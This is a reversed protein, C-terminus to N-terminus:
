SSQLTNEWGQGGFWGKHCYRGPRNWCANGCRGEYGVARCRIKIDDIIDSILLTNNKTLDIEVPEKPIQGEKDMLIRIIPRNPYKKNVDVVIAKEGNNLLVCTGPPYITIHEIFNRVINYDFQHGGM